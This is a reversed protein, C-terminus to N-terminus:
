KIIVTGMRSALQMELEKLHQYVEILSIQEEANAIEVIRM